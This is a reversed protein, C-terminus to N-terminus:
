WSTGTLLKIFFKNFPTILKYKKIIEQWQKSMFNKKMNKKYHQMAQKYYIKSDSIGIQDYFEQRIYWANMFYIDLAMIIGGFTREFINLDQLAQDIYQQAFIIHRAEEISHYKSVDQVLKNVQNNNYCMKGFDDSILEVIIQLLFFRRASLYKSSIRAQRALFGTIPIYTNWLLELARMFMDQHRYEEIQERILFTFEDSAFGLDLLHRAMFHCMITESQAYCYIIQSAELKSLQQKQRTSLTDYIPLGYLSILSEEMYWQNKDLNYNDRDFFSHYLIEWKRSAQILNDIVNKM